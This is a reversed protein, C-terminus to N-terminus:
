RDGRDKLIAIDTAIQSLATNSHDSRVILEDLKQTVPDPKDAKSPGRNLWMFLAIGGIPGLTAILETLTV